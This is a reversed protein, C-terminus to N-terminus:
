FVMPYALNRLSKLIERLLGPLPLARTRGHIHATRNYRVADLLLEQQRQRYNYQHITAYM